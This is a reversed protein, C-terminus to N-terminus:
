FMHCSPHMAVQPRGAVLGVICKDVFEVVSDNRLMCPAIICKMICKLLARHHVAIDTIWRDTNQITCASIVEVVTVHSQLRSM